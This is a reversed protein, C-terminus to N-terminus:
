DVVLDVVDFYLNGERFVNLYCHARFHFRFISLFFFGRAPSIRWIVLNDVNIKDGALAKM